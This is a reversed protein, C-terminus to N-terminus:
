IPRWNVGSASATCSAICAARMSRLAGAKVTMTRSTKAIPIPAVVAITLMASATKRRASGTDWGSRTM